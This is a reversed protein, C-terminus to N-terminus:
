NSKEWSLRSSNSLQYFITRSRQSFLYCPSLDTPYSFIDGERSEFRESNIHVIASGKTVYIIELEPHCHYITDPSTKSLIQKEFDYPFDSPNDRLFRSRDAM